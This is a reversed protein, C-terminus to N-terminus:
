AGAWFQQFQYRRAPDRRRHITVTYAIGDTRIFEAAVEVRDAVGDARLWNLADAAADRIGNLTAPTALSREYV